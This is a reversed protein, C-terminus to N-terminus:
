LIEFQEGYGVQFTRMSLFNKMSMMEQFSYIVLIEKVKRFMM